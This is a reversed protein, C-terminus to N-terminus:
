LNRRRRCCGTYYSRRVNYAARDPVWPEPLPGGPPYWDPDPILCFVNYIPDDYFFSDGVPSDPYITYDIDGPVWYPPVVPLDLKDLVVCSIHFWALPSKPVTNWAPFWMGTYAHMTNIQYINQWFDLQGPPLARFLTLSQAHDM